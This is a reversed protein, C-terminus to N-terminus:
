KLAALSTADDLLTAVSQQLEPGVNALAAEFADDFRTLCKWPDSTLDVMSYVHIVRRDDPDVERRLVDRNVLRDVITTVGAATVGLHRGLDSPRVGPNRAVHLIALVDIDNLGLTRRAETLCRTREFMYRTLATSIPSTHLALATMPRATDIRKTDGRGNPRAVERYDAGWRPM